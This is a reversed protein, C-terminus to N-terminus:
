LNTIRFSNVISEVTERQLSDKKEFQVANSSTLLMLVDGEPSVEYADVLGRREVRLGNGTVTAYKIKFRRHTACLNNSDSCEDLVTSSIVKYDDIETGVSKVITGNPDFISAGMFAKPVSALTEGPPLKTRLLYLRDGNRQDVYSLGGQVKDLQLWDSPFEFSISLSKVKAAKPAVVQDELRSITGLANARSIRPNFGPTARYAWTAIPGGDNEENAAATGLKNNAPASSTSTPSTNGSSQSMEKLQSVRTSASGDYARLQEQLSTGSSTGTGGGDTRFGSVDVAAWAPRPHSPTISLSTVLGATSPIVFFLFSRRNSSATTPIASGGSQGNPNSEMFATCGQIRRSGQQQPFAFCSQLCFFALCGLLQSAIM